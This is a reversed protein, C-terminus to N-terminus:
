STEAHSMTESIVYHPDYNDWYPHDHNPHGCVPCRGCHPCVNPSPIYGIRFTTGGTTPQEQVQMM